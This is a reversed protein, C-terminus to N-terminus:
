WAYPISALERTDSESPDHEDDIIDLLLSTGPGIGQFALWLGPAITLRAYRDVGLGLRCEQFRGSTESAPRDDHIVFRIAGQPVVLNLTVRRHRRWSKIAGQHVESFYAEGFGVFGPASKKLGHMVNGSAGAICRLPSVLVGEIM